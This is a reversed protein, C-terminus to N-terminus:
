YCPEEGTLCDGDSDGPVQTMLANYIADAIGRGTAAHSAYTPHVGFTAALEVRCISYINDTGLPPISQTRSNFGTVRYGRSKGYAVAAEAEQVLQDTDVYYTWIPTVLIMNIHRSYANIFDMYSRWFAGIQAPTYGGMTSATGGGLLVFDNKCPSPFRVALTSTLAQGIAVMNSGSAADTVNCNLLEIHPHAGVFKAGIGYNVLLRNVIEPRNGAYIMQEACFFGDDFSDGYQAITLNYGCPVFTLAPSVTPTPSPTSTITSSPAPTQTPTPTGYGDEATMAGFYMLANLTDFSGGIGIQGYSYTNDWTSLLPVNNVCATLTAGSALFSLKFRNSDAIAVGTVSTLTVTSNGDAAIEKISLAGASRVFELVYGGGVTNGALGVSRIFMRPANGDVYATFSVNSFWAGNYLQQMTGSTKRLRAAKDANWHPNPYVDGTITQAIDSWGYNPLPSSTLSTYSPFAQWTQYYGVPPTLTSTPAVTPTSTPTCPAEDVSPFSTAAVNRFRVNAMYGNALPNQGFFNDYGVGVKTITGSGLGNNITAIPVTQTGVGFYLKTQTTTWTVALTYTTNVAVTGVPYQNTGGATFSFNSLYRYLSLHNFGARSLVIISESTAGVSSFQIQCEFSGESLPVGGSVTSEIRNAASFPGAWETNPSPPTPSSVFPITGVQSLLTGSCEHTFDGDLPLFDITGSACGCAAASLRPLLLAVLLLKTLVARMM